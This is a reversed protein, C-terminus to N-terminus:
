KTLGKAVGEAVKGAVDGVSEKRYMTVDVLIDNGDKVAELRDFEIGGLSRYHFNGYDIVTCGCLWYAIACMVAAQIITLVIVKLDTKM